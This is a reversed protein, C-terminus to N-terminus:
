ICISWKGFWSCFFFQGIGSQAPLDSDYHIEINNFKFDTLAARILPHNIEKFSNCKEIKSYALSISHDHFSPLDRITVYSYKKIAFGLVQGGEKRFAQFM